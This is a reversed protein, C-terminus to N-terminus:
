IGLKARKQNLFYYYAVNIMDKEDTYVMIRRLIIFRKIKPIVYALFILYLAITLYWIWTFQTIVLLIGIVVPLSSSLASARLKM